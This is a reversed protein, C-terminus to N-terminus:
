RPDYSNSARRQDKCNLAKYIFVITIISGSIFGSFFLFTEYHTMLGRVNGSIGAALDAWKRGVQAEM